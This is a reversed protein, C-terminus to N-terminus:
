EEKIYPKMYKFQELNKENISIFYDELEKITLDYINRM